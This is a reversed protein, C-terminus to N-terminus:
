SGETLEGEVRRAAVFLQTEPPSQETPPAYSVADDWEIAFGAAAVHAHLDDRPYGSVRVEQGLFPFPLDDIDAEVMSLGFLGGPVLLRRVAAFAEDLRSRPLNLLSFFAVVADFRIPDRGPDPRDFLDLLDVADGLVFTAEPVNGRATALMVPSIDVGTVRCGAESFQRATPLGTGCGVDLVHASDPLSKLLHAVLAIQGEKHPFVEDYLEGMRDYAAAQRAERETWSQAM